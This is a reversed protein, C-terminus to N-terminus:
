ILSFIQYGKFVGKIFKIVRAVEEFRLEVSRVMDQIM